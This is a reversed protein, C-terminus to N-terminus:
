KTWQVSRHNLGSVKMHTHGRVLDFACFYLSTVVCVLSFAKYHPFGDFMDINHESIAMINM